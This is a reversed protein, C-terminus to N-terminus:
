VTLETRRPNAKNLRKQLLMRFDIKTKKQNESCESMDGTTITSKNM